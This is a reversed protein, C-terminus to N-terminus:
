NLIHRRVEWFLGKIGLFIRENELLTREKGPVARKDELRTRKNELVVM